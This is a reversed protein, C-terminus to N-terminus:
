LARKKAGVLTDKQRERPEKKERRDERGEERKKLGEGLDLRRHSQERSELDKNGELICLLITQKLQELVKLFM